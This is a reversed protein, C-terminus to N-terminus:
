RAAALPLHRRVAAAFTGDPRATWPRAPRGRYAYYQGCHVDPGDATGGRRGSQAPGAGVMRRGRGPALGAAARVTWLPRHHAHGPRDGVWRRARRGARRGRHRGGAAAYVTSLAPDHGTGAGAGERHGAVPDEDPRCGAPIRAPVWPMAAAGDLCPLVVDVRDSDVPDSMGTVSPGAVGPALADTSVSRKGRVPDKRVPSCSSALALPTFADTAAVESSWVDTYGLDVLEALLPAHADLPVETLPVTPGWRQYM